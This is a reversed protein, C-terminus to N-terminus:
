FWSRVWTTGQTAKDGVWGAGSSAKDGVWGAGSSAAERITGWTSPKEPRSSTCLFVEEGDRVANLKEETVLCVVTRGDDHFFVQPEEDPKVSFGPLCSSPGSESAEKCAMYGSGHFTEWYGSGHFTECAQAPFALATLVTAIAITKM